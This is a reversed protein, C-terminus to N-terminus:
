RGVQLQPALFVGYGRGALQQLEEYGIRIARRFQADWEATRRDGAILGSTPTFGALAMNSTTYPPVSAAYITVEFGRRQLQRTATLGVTGCGIVAARRSEHEVALDAALAGTGWGLSHGAGGHGYNHIATKDDLREARVQFGSPRYPRLGVTTRIIREWSCEVRALEVVPRPVEGPRAARGACAGTGLGALALGGAKILARRNVTRKNYAAPEHDDQVGICVARCHHDAEHFRNM